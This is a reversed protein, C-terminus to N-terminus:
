ISAEYKLVCDVKRSDFDYLLIRKVGPIPIKGKVSVGDKIFVNCIKRFERVEEFEFIGLNADRLKTFLQVIEAVRQNIDM